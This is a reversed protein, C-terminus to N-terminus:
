DGLKSIDLNNNRIKSNLINRLNKIDLLVTDIKTILESPQEKDISDYLQILLEKLKDSAESNYTFEQIEDYLDIDESNDENIHKYRNIINRINKM